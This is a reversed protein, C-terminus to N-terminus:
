GARGISSLARPGHVVARRNRRHELGRPPDQAPANMARRLIPGSTRLPVVCCPTTARSFLSRLRRTLSARSPVSAAERPWVGACSPIRSFRISGAGCAGTRMPDDCWSAPRATCSRRGRVAPTRASWPFDAPWPKWSRWASARRTPHLSSYRLRAICDPWGADQSLGERFEITAWSHGPVRGRELEDASPGDHGALVLPPPGEHIQRLHHYAQFLLRVNKRPDSLRGVCLIPGGNQPGPDPRFSIPTWGPPAFVVRSPPMRARLAELMSINEVFVTDVFRLAKFDTRSTVPVDRRAVM